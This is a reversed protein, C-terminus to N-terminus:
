LKDGEKIGIRSLRNKLLQKFLSSSSFGILAADLSSFETLVQPLTGMCIIVTTFSFFWVPVFEELFLPWKFHKFPINKLKVILHLLVGLFAFFWDRFEVHPFLSHYINVFTEM